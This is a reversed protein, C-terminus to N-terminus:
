DGRCLVGKKFITGPVLNVRYRSARLIGRSRGVKEFAEENLALPISRSSTSVEVDFVIDLVANVHPAGSGNNKEVGCAKCFYQVNKFLLDGSMEPTLVDRFLLPIM